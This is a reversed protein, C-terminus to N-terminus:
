YDGPMAAGPVDIVKRVSRNRPMHNQDALNTPQGAIKNRHLRIGFVADLVEEMTEVFVIDLDELVDAQVQDLDRRNQAPLILKRIGARRAALVKEKIGGVPLVRGTLTLEGTMATDGPVAMGTLLSVLAVALGVGASPGDKAVAGSPIHLHIDHHEYFNPPIGLDPAKARVYSLATQASERMVEGLQGTIILTKHGPMMLAEIHMIDGGVPTWFVGTVLGPQDTSVPEETLFRPTGLVETVFGADATYPRDVEVQRAEVGEESQEKDRDEAAQAVMTAVRRCVTAIERELQRVGAERTYSRIIELVADEQWVLDRETLAHLHMQRPILYQMAIHVKEEETYGALRIVELRDRLAEPVPDLSNATAIFIINSIDFPVELYHDVFERQQEPDLVDLLAATPDGRGITGSVAGIKDLEDLMVVPNNTGVRALSQIIRGPMAGLYTRRHGRIEAEDSVGGLSIRVFPRNLAEAISRGLSTKGVGPPGVLCLVASTSLSHDFSAQSPAPHVSTGADAEGDAQPGGDAPTPVWQAQPHGAGREKRLKHVALYEIIRRKVEELGYHDRDLIARARDLDVHEEGAPQWPVEALWQLYNYILNYDPSAPTLMQLRQLERQAVQMAEPPLAANQLREELEAYLALHRGSAQPMGTLTSTSAGAETQPRNGEADPMQDHAEQRPPQPQPQPRLASIENYKSLLTHLYALKGLTGPTELVTQRAAVSIPITSAVLYALQLPDTTDELVPLLRGAASDRYLLARYLAAVQAALQRVSEEPEDPQALPEVQGLAYPEWQTISVLKVPTLGEATVEIRGSADRKQESLRALTGTTHLDEVTLATSGSANQTQLFLAVAGAELAAVLLSEVHEGQLSLPYVAGPFVVNEALPLIPVELRRGPTPAM